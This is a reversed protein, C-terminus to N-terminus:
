GVATIAYRKWVEAQPPRSVVASDVIGRSSQQFPKTIFASPRNRVTELIRPRATSGFSRLCFVHSTTRSSVPVLLPRASAFLGLRIMISLHHHNPFSIHRRIVCVRCRCGMNREIILYSLRESRPLWSVRSNFWVLGFRSWTELWLCRVNEM